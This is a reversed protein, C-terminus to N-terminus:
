IQYVFSEGKAALKAFDVPSRLPPGKSPKLAAIKKMMASPSNSIDLQSSSILQGLHDMDVEHAPFKTRYSERHCSCLKHCM